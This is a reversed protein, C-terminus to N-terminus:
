PYGERNRMEREYLFDSAKLEDLEYSDDVILSCFTCEMRVPFVGQPVSEGDCWDYDVESELAAPNGCAPCPFTVYFRDGGVLQELVRRRKTAHAHNLADDKMAAWQLAHQQVRKQLTLAADQRARAEAPDEEGHGTLTGNPLKLESEFGMVVSPADLYTLRWVEDKTLQSLPCHAIIDRARAIRHLTALNGQVTSSVVAARSLAERYTLVDHNPDKALESSKNGGGVIRHQYLATVTHKFAPEKFVYVPNVEYLIGKLIREVGLAYLMTSVVPSSENLIGRQWLACRLLSSADRLYENLQM